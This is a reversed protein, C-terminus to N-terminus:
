SPCITKLKCRGWKRENLAYAYVAADCLFYFHDSLPMMHEKDYEFRYDLFLASKTGRRRSRSVCTECLCVRDNSNNISEVGNMEGHVEIGIAHLKM